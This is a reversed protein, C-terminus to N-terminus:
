FLRVSVLTKKKTKNRSEKVFTGFVEFEIM